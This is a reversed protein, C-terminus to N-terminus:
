RVTWAHSPPARVRALPHMHTPHQLLPPQQRGGHARCEAACGPLGGAQKDTQKDTQRDETQRDTKQRNNGRDLNAQGCAQGRAQQIYWSHHSNGGVMREVKPPVDRCVGQRDTQRDTQRHSRSLLALSLPHPRLDSPPSVVPCDALARARVVWGRRPLGSFPQTCLPAFVLGAVARWGLTM